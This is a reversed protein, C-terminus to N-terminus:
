TLNFCGKILSLLFTDASVSLIVCGVGFQSIPAEFDQRELGGGNGSSLRYLIVREEAQTYVGVWEGVECRRCVVSADLASESATGHQPFEVREDAEYEIIPSSSLGPRSQNSVWLHGDQPDYEKLHVSPLGDDFGMVRWTIAM